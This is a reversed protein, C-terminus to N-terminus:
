KALFTQNSYRSLLERTHLNTTFDISTKNLDFLWKNKKIKIKQFALLEQNERRTIQVTHFASRSLKFGSYITPHWLFPSYSSDFSLFMVYVRTNAVTWSEMTFVIKGIQDVIYCEWNIKELYQISYLIYFSLSLSFTLFSCMLISM